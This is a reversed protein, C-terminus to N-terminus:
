GYSAVKNSQLGRTLAGMQVDIGRLFYVVCRCFLAKLLSLTGGACASSSRGQITTYHKVSNYTYVRRAYVLTVSGGSGGHMSM